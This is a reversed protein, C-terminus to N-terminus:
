SERIFPNYEPHDKWFQMKCRMSEGKWFSSFVPAELCNWAINLLAVHSMAGAVSFYRVKDEHFTQDKIGFVGTETDWHLLIRDIIESGSWESSPRNTIFYQQDKELTLCHEKQIYFAEKIGSVEGHSLKSLRWLRRNHTDQSERHAAQFADGQPRQEHSRKAEKIVRSYLKGANAKIRLLYLFGQESLWECFTKVCFGADGSILVVPDKPLPTLADLISLAAGWEGNRNRETPCAGLIFRSRQNQANRKIESV